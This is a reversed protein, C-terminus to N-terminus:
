SNLNFQNPIPSLCQYSKCAWCPHQKCVPSLIVLKPSKGWRLSDLELSLHRQPGEAWAIQRPHVRDERNRQCLGVWPRFPSVSQVTIGEWISCCHSDVRAWSCTRAAGTLGLCRGQHCTRPSWHKAWARWQGQGQNPSHHVRSPLCSMGQSVIFVQERESMRKGDGDLIGRHRIAPPGLRPSIAWLSPQCGFVPWHCPGKSKGIGVLLRSSELLNTERFSVRRPFLKFIGSCSFPPM